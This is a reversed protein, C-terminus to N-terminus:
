YTGQARGQGRRSALLVPNAFDRHQSQVLNRMINTASALDSTSYGQPDVGSLELAGILSGAHSLLYDDWLGAPYLAKNIPSSQNSM